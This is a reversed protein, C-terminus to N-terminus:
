RTRISLEIFDRVVDLEENSAVARKPFWAVPVRLQKIVLVRDGEKLETVLSWPVRATGTATVATIGTKDFTFSATSGVISRAGRRVRWRDVVETSGSFLFVLGIVGFGLAAVLDSDFIAFVAGLALSVLGFGVGIRNLTTQQLRLYAVLDDITITFKVSYPPNGSGSM